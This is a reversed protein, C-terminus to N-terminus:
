EEDNLKAEATETEAKELTSVSFREVLIDTKPAIEVTITHKTIQKVTGHIGSSMIVRNGVELKNQFELLADRNKNYTKVNRYVYYGMFVILIAVSWIWSPVKQLLELM